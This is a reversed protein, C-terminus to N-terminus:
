WVALSNGLQTYTGENRKRRPVRILILPRLNLILALAQGRTWIVKPCSNRDNASICRSELSAPVDLWYQHNCLSQWDTVSYQIWQCPWFRVPETFAPLHALNWIHSASNVTVTMEPATQRDAPSPNRCGYLALCVYFLGSSLCPYSICTVVIDHWWSLSLRFSSTSFPLAFVGELHCMKQLRDMTLSLAVDM